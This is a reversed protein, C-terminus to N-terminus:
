RARRGGLLEDLEHDRFLRYVSYPLRLLTEIWGEFMPPPAVAQPEDPRRNSHRLIRDHFDLSKDYSGRLDLSKIFNEFTRCRAMLSDIYYAKSDIHNERLQLPAARLSNLFEFVNRRFEALLSRALQLQALGSIHEVGKGPVDSFDMFSTIYRSEFPSNLRDPTPSGFFLDLIETLPSALSDAARRASDFLELFHPFDGEPASATGALQGFVSRLGTAVAVQVDRRTLALEVLDSLRTGFGLNQRAIEDVRDRITALVDERRRQELRVRLGTLAAELDEPFRRLRHIVVRDFASEVQPALNEALYGNVVLLTAIKPGAEDRIRVKGSREALAKAESEQLISRALLVACGSEDDGVPLWFDVRSDKKPEAGDFTQDRQFRWGHGDIVRTIEGVVDETTTVEFQERAVERIMARDVKTGALTAAQYMHYCLRFIKRANGGAIETLYSVTDPTFPELHAAGTARLQAERIYQETEEPTLPSPTVKLTVRQLADPPLIEWFDPLGALILLARTDLVAEMLKKFALITAQDPAASPSFVKEMEDIILVFRHHQRGFLFAMVGIAELAQPDSDIQRRIGREKLTPDPPSGKLWEWIANEFEPRRFLLLATSFDERETVMKLKEGLLRVFKSEMLGFEKVVRDPSIDRRRLREATARTLESGDLEEAVIDSYYDEVRRQVQGKNLRPIFRDRYLALFTDSPADLYFTHITPDNAEEIRRLLEGALHTKGTGYEGVIAIVAGDEKKKAQGSTRGTRTRELYDRLHDLALRVAETQITLYQLGGPSLRAVGGVQFINTDPSSVGSIDRAPALSTGPPPRDEPKTGSVPTKPISTEDAARASGSARPSVSKKRSM